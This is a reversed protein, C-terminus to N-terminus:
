HAKAWGPGRDPVSGGMRNDNVEMGGNKTDVLCYIRFRIAVVYKIAICIDTCYLYVVLFFYM